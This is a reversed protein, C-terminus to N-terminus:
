CCLFVHNEFVIAVFWLGVFAVMSWGVFLLVRMRGVPRRWGIWETEFPELADAAMAVAFAGPLLLALNLRSALLSSTILVLITAVALSFVRPDLPFGLRERQRPRDADM